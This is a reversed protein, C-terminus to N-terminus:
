QVVVKATVSPRLHDHYGWSGARDFTFSFSAGDQLTNSRLEKLNTHVPHPNSAIDVSRGSKNVFIVSTGRPVTLTAPSFGDNGIEVTQSSKESSPSVQATPQSAQTPAPTASEAGDGSQAIFVGGAVLVAFIVIGIVTNRNM